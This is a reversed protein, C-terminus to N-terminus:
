QNKIYNLIMEIADQFGENVGHEHVDDYNGWDWWDVDREFSLNSKSELWQILEKMVKYNSILQKAKATNDTNTM